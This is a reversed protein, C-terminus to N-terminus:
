WTIMLMLKISFWPYDWNEDEKKEKKVKATKSSAKENKDSSNKSESPEYDEKFEPHKFKMHQAM